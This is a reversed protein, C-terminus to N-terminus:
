AYIYLHITFYVQFFLLRYFSWLSRLMGNLAYLSQRWGLLKLGYITVCWCWWRNRCNRWVWSMKTKMYKNEELVRDYDKDIRKYCYQYYHMDPFNVDRVKLNSNKKWIYFQRIHLKKCIMMGRLSLDVGFLRWIKMILWKFSLMVKFLVM